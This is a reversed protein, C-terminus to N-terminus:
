PDPVECELATFLKIVNSKNRGNELFDISWKFGMFSNHARDISNMKVNQLFLSHKRASNYPYQVGYMFVM